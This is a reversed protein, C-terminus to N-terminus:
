KFFFFSIPPAHIQRRLDRRGSQHSNKKFIFISFLDDLKNGGALFGYFGCRSTVFLDTRKVAIFPGSLYESFLFKQKQEFRGAVRRHGAWLHRQM